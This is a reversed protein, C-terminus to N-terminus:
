IMMIRCDEARQLPTENQRGIGVRGGAEPWAGEFFVESGGYGPGGAGATREVVRRGFAPRPMPGVGRDFRRSLWERREQHSRDDDGRSIICLASRRGYVPHSQFRM